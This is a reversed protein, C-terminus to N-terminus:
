NSICAPVVPVSFTAGSCLTAGPFIDKFIFSMDPKQREIAAAFLKGAVNCHMNPQM